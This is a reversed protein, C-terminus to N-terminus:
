EGSTQGDYVHSQSRAKVLCSKLAFAAGLWLVILVIGIAQVRGPPPQNWPSSFNSLGQMQEIKYDRYNPDRDIPTGFQNERSRPDIAKYEHKWILDAIALPIQAVWFPVTGPLLLFWVGFLLPAALAFLLIYFM